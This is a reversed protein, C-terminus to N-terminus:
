RPHVELYLLTIELHHDAGIGHTEIPCRGTARALFRM